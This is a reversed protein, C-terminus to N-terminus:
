PKLLLVSKGRTVHLWSEPVLLSVESDDSMVPVTCWRELQPPGAHIIILCPLFPMDVGQKTDPDCSCPWCGPNLFREVWWGWQGTGFFPGGSLPWDAFRDVLVLCPLYVRLRASLPLCISVTSLLQEPFHRDRDWGWHKLTALCQFRGWSHSMGFFFLFSFFLGFWEEDPPEM